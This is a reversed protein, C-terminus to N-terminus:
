TSVPSGDPPLPAGSLLIQLLQLSRRQSKAEPAMAPWWSATGSYGFVGGASGVMAAVPRRCGCSGVAALALGVLTNQLLQLGRRQSKAPPGVVLGTATM